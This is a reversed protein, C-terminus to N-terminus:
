EITKSQYKKRNLCFFIVAYVIAPIISVILFPVTLFTEIGFLAGFGEWFFCLLLFLTVGVFETVLWPNRYLRKFEM